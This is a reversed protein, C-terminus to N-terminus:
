PNTWKYYWEELGIRSAFYEILGVRTWPCRDEVVLRSPVIEVPLQNSESLTSWRARYTGSYRRCIGGGLTCPVRREVIRGEVARVYLFLQPDPAAVPARYIQRMLDQTDQWGAVAVMPGFEFGSGRVIAAPSQGVVQNHTTGAVAGLGASVRFVGFGLVPLALLPAGPRDPHTPSPAFAWGGCDPRRDRAIWQEVDRPQLPHLEFRAPLDPSVEILAPRQPAQAPTAGSQQASALGCGVPALLALALRAVCLRPPRCWGSYRIAVLTRARLMSRRM